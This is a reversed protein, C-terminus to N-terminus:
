NTQLTMLKIVPQQIQTNCSCQIHMRTYLTHMDHVCISGSVIPGQPLLSSANLLGFSPKTSYPVCVNARSTAGTAQRLRGSITTCKLQMNHDPKPLRFIGCFHSRVRTVSTETIVMIAQSRSPWHVATDRVPGRAGTCCRSSLHAADARRSCYHQM